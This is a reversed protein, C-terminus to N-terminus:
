KPVEDHTVGDLLRGARKKGIRYMWCYGLPNDEARSLDEVMRRFDDLATHDVEVARTSTAEGREMRHKHQEVTFDRMCVRGDKLWSIGDARPHARENRNPGNCYADVGSTPAWEGWQKFFFPVGAAACQDRLSRAWDPHVPRAGKGSEGGVIVWDLKSSTGCRFHDGDAVQWHGSLANRTEHEGESIQRSMRTLDVPGRLPEASVFRKTAPTNLLIPVRVAAAAHDEVSVGLWVNPLPGNGIREAAALTEPLPRGLDAVALAAQTERDPDNAIATLYARMREPRKTLVQFTHQPCLAMVAFVRDIWADPVAEHFLDGHACVFIRKPRKWRLPQDLTAEDARWTRDFHMVLGLFLPGDLPRNM